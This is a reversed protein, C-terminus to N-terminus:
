RKVIMAVANGGGLCITALGTRADRGKMAHLLTTLVRAGSCGIPHGLAVAGGHVNFRDDPVGLERKVAVSATAFAENHEFLDIDDIKMKTKMLLARVTQIPAEMIHEPKVGGTNYDVITAMPEIGHRDAFERSAIVVAAAGDSIQSSNGATVVGGEKFYPKLKGLSEVSIEPRIGEDVKLDVSERKGKVKFPVIEADFDGNNTAALAKMHSQYSLIDAEERTVHYREAVIEGTIGMLMGAISDYLGDHILHDILKGDNLRYGWRAKKLLYPAASMNEMGGAVVVDHEESRIANAAIMVAKLGSGCLKNINLAGIEMPLGAKVAAQRTPNQGAGAPLCIGMICEQISSPEIRARKISEGIVAAGLDTVPTETLAGGFKGVATRVASLIVVEKM